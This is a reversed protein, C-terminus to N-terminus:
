AVGTLLSQGPTPPEAKSPRGGSRGAPNPSKSGMANQDPVAIFQAQRSAVAQSSMSSHLDLDLLISLRSQNNYDLDPFEPLKQIVEMRLQNYIEPYLKRMADARIPDITSIDGMWEDIVDLPTQFVQFIRSMQEAQVPNPKWMSKMNNHATGPDRPILELLMDFLQSAKTHLGQAFADHEGVFPNVANFLTEKYTASADAIEMARRKALEQKDKTDKDFTGDLRQTLPEIRPLVFKAVKSKSPSLHSVAQFIRNHVAARIGSIEAVIGAMGGTLYSVGYTAGQYALSSTLAGGGINRVKSSAGRAAAQKAVRRFFSDYEGDKKAKVKALKASMAVDYQAASDRAINYVKRLQEVPSSSEVVIGASRSLNDASGKVAEQLAHLGDDTNKMVYDLAGFVREAKDPRMAIFAEPTSPLNRLEKVANYQFTTKELTKELDKLRTSAETLKATALEKRIATEKELNAIRGRHDDAFTAIRDDVNKGAAALEESLTASRAGLEDLSTSLKRLPHGEPLARSFQSIAAAREADDAIGPLAERLSHYETFFEDRPRVPMEEFADAMKKSIATYEKNILKSEADFTKQALDREKALSGTATEYEKVAGKSFANFEEDALALEKELAKTEARTTKLLKSTEALKTETAPITRVLEDTAGRIRGYEGARVPNVFEKIDDGHAALHKEAAKGLTGAAAGLGMGWLTGWGAGALISESTIPEGDLSAKTISQGAGAVAGELAGAAALGKVGGIAESVAGGAAGLAGAPMLRAASAIASEGGSAIAPIVAGAIEGAVRTKPNYQARYKTGDDSMAPDVLGLSAGSAVGQWFTEVKQQGSTYYDERTQEISRDVAQNETELKYGIKQLKVAQEPTVSTVTGDPRVVNVKKDPM